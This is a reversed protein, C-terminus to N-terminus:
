NSEKNKNDGKNEEVVKLKRCDTKKRGFKHCCNCKGKFGKNKLANSTSPM